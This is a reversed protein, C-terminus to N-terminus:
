SSTMEQPPPPLPLDSNMSVSDNEKDETNATSISMKDVEDKGGSTGTVPGDVPIDVCHLSLGELKVFLEDLIDTEKFDVLQFERNFTSYHQFVSNLHPTLRLFQIQRCSWYM